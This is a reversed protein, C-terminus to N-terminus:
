AHATLVKSAFQVNRLAIGLRIKTMRLTEVVLNSRDHQVAISNSRRRLTAELRESAAHM